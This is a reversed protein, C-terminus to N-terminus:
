KGGLAGSLKLLMGYLMARHDARGSKCAFEAETCEVYMKRLAATKMPRAQAILRDALWASRTDIAAMVGRQGTGADLCERALCLLRIQRTIMFLIQVPYEGGRILLETKARAGAIRGATLDDIMEFITAEPTPTVMRAILAADVTEGCSALKGIEENLRACDRGAAAILADASQKDIRSGAAKFRQAIWAELTRDDLHEFNVGKGKTELLEFVNKKPTKGRGRLYENMKDGPRTYFLLTCEPPPDDLWKNFVDYAGANKKKGGSEGADKSRDTQLMGAWDRVVVLRRPAMVPLMEAAEIIDEAPVNGELLTENLEELGPVLLKERLRDFASKKIYEEDGYFHYVPAFEGKDWQSYMEQWYNM